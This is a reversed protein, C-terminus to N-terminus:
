AIREYAYLNFREHEYIKNKDVKFGLFRLLKHAKINDARVYNTLHPLDGLVQHFAKRLEILGKTGKYEHLYKTTFVWPHAIGSALSIVYYGGAMLLKQPDEYLVAAKASVKLVKSMVKNRDGGSVQLEKRSIEDLNVWIPWVDEETMPRIIM